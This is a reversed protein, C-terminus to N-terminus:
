GHIARKLDALMAGPFVSKEVFDSAGAALAPALMEARPRASM